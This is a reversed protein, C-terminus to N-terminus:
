NISKTSRRWIQERLAWHKPKVNRQISPEMYSHHTQRSRFASCALTLVNLWCKQGQPSLMVLLLIYRKLSRKHAAHLLQSSNKKAVALEKSWCKPVVWYLQPCFCFLPIWSISVSFWKPYILLRAFRNFSIVARRDFHCADPWQGFIASLTLFWVLVSRKCSLGFVWDSKIQGPLELLRLETSNFSPKYHHCVAAYSPQFSSM